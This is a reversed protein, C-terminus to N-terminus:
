IIASRHNNPAVRTSHADVDLSRPILGEVREHAKAHLPVSRELVGKLLAPFADSIRTYHDRCPRSSSTDVLPRTQPPVTDIVAFSAGLTDRSDVTPARAWADGVGSIQALVGEWPPDSVRANSHISLWPSQVSTTKCSSFGANFAAARAREGRRGRLPM